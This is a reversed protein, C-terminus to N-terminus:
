FRKNVQIKDGPYIPVDREPHKLLKKCDV